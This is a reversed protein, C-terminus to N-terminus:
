PEDDARVVLDYDDWDIVEGRIFRGPETPEVLYCVSDIEPAQFGTRGVCRGDVDFGDVLVEVRKGMRAENAAFAIEQQALMIEEARAAVVEEDVAGPLRAAPTGPEPSFEFVGLAEFETSRVFELLEAFNEDSEGPFGVILTTRLAIGPMASRLRQILSEIDARSHGRGMTKLIDDSIHQLPVDVYRAVKRCSAMADILEDRFGGPYTYMLRIWQLGEIDNLQGLLGALNGGADLDTGYATTDQGILSLEVAGDAVLERAEALVEDAPKSRFPGRIAPITCFTCRHDCGESIRLYATHRATLRLRGTDDGPPGVPDDLQIFPGDTLVAKLISTRENVGIVADVAPAAKLLDRGDRTPLCGTVVVRRCRGAQKHEVAENIVDMAEARAEALFGCTNILIVDAQDMPSGVVCGGEALLGLMKECDVLAKPCGLSVVAVHPAHSETMGSLM